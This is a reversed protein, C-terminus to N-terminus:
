QPPPLIPPQKIGQIVAPALKQLNGTKRLLSGVGTKAGTSFLARKLLIGSAFKTAYDVPNTFAGEIGGASQGGAIVDTLYGSYSGKKKLRSAGELLPAMRQNLTKATSVNKEIIEKANSRLIDNTIEKATATADGQKAFFKTLSSGLKKKFNQVQSLTLPKNGAVSRFEEVVRNIAQKAPKIDGFKLKLMPHAVVQEVVNPGILDDATFGMKEGLKVLGPLRAKDAEIIAKDLQQSYKTIKKSAKQLMGKKTLQFGVDRGFAEGLGLKEAIAVGKQTITSPIASAFLANSATKGLKGVASFGGAIGGSIAANPTIDGEQLATIGAAGLAERGITPLLKQSTGFKSLMGGVKGAKELKGAKAALSGPIFFEGIQEAGFGLAQMQNSPTTIEEPLSSIPIDTNKNFMQGLGARLPTSALKLGRQGLESAGSITSAVGKAAGVALQVPDREPNAEEELKVEEFAKNREELTPKKAALLKGYGANVIQEDKKKQLTEASRSASAVKNIGALTGQVAAKTAIKPLTKPLNKILGSLQRYSKVRAIATKADLGQAKMAKLQTTEQPSFLPAAM